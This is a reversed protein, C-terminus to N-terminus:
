RLEERFDYINVGNKDVTRDYMERHCFPCESAALSYDEDYEGNETNLMKDLIRPARIILIPNMAVRVPEDDSYGFQIEIEGNLFAEKMENCCVSWLLGNDMVRINEMPHSEILRRKIEIVKAKVEKQKEANGMLYSRDVKGALEAADYLDENKEAQEFYKMVEEAPLVKEGDFAKRWGILKSKGIM